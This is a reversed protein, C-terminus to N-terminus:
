EQGGLRASGHVEAVRPQLGITALATMSKGSGSEGVLATIRGARVTLDLGTVVARGGIEVRLGDLVLLEDVDSSASMREADGHPLEPLGPVRRDRLEGRRLRPHLLEELLDAAGGTVGRPDAPGRRGVECAGRGSRDDLVGADVDPNDYRALNYNGSGIQSSDFLPTLNANPSPVDPQWSSLVLDYASGDGATVESSYANDDLPQITVTIGARALGQQIAVAAGTQDDTIVLRLDLDTAGAEELLRTAEEPLDSSRRTPFSP